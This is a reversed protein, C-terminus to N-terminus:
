VLVPIQLSLMYQPIKYFFLRKNEEQMKWSLVKEYKRYTVLNTKLVKKATCVIKKKVKVQTQKVPADSLYCVVLNHMATIRFLRLNQTSNVKIFKCIRNDLMESLYQFMIWCNENGTIKDVSSSLNELKETLWIPLM